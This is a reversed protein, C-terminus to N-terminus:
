KSLANETNESGQPEQQDDIVRAQPSLNIFRNSEKQIDLINVRGRQKVFLAVKMLEEETLYIYKGREDIIGSLRGEADL